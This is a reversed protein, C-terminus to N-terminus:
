RGRSSRRRAEPLQLGAVMARQKRAMVARARRTADDYGLLHLTGHAALLALEEAESWGYDIAQRAAAELNIILDGLLAEPVPAAPPPAPAPTAPFALVDTPWDHRLCARNWVRMQADNTLLVSLTVPASVSEAKLM